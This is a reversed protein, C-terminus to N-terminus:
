SIEQLVVRDVSVQSSPSGPYPSTEPKARERKVGELLRECAQQEDLDVLDIFIISGLLGEVECRQIRVPLVRGEKGKPDHRFVAAWEAFSYDSALYAPPYHQL